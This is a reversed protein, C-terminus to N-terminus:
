APRVVDPLLLYGLRCRSALRRLPHSSTRYLHGPRQQHASCTSLDLLLMLRQALIRIKPSFSVCMFGVVLSDGTPLPVHLEDAPQPSVRVPPLPGVTWCQQLGQVVCARFIWSETTAGAEEGFNMGFFLFAAASAIAYCWTAAAQLHTQVPTLAGHLSPLGILFFALCFSLRSPCFLQETVEPM